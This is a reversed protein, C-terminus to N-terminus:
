PLCSYIEVLDIEGIFSNENRGPCQGIVIPSFNNVLNGKLPVKRAYGNVVGTLHTGDYTLRVDNMGDHVPLTVSSGASSLDTKLTMTVDDGSTSLHVSPPSASNAGCNSLIDMSQKSSVRAARRSRTGGLYKKLHGPIQGTGRKVSGDPLTIEWQQNSGNQQLTMQLDAPVDGTGTRVTGDPMTLTWKKGLTSSNKSKQGQGQGQASTMLDSPVAGTGTRVTGDPLTASWVTGTGAGQSRIAASVDAPMEGVGSRVSGDPLTVKWRNIVDSGGTAIKAAPSYVEQFLDLIEQPIPGTGSKVEGSPLKVKWGNVHSTQPLPIEGKAFQTVGDPLAGRGELVKQGNVRTVEWHPSGGDRSTSRLLLNAPNASYKQLTLMPTRGQGSELVHGNPALVSWTSTVQGPTLAPGLLFEDLLAQPIQGPGEQLESGDPKSIQWRDVTDGREYVKVLTGPTFGAYRNMVDDPIPGEGKQLVIGGPALIFWRELTPPLLDFGHKQQIDQPVDGRGVEVIKGTKGDPHVSVIRWKLNNNDDVGENILIKDKGNPIYVIGNQITPTAAKGIKGIHVVNNHQQGPSTWTMNVDYRPDRVITGNKLFTLIELPKLAAGPRNVTDKIIVEKQGTVINQGNSTNKLWHQFGWDNNTLVQDNTTNRKVRFRVHIVLQDRLNQNATAPMTLHSDGSFHATGSTTLSVNHIDVHQHNGSTDEFNTDFNLKVNPTCALTPVVQGADFTCACLRTSYMQGPSCFRKVHGQGPIVELYSYYSDRDPRYRCAGLNFITVELPCKEQCAPDGVCGTGEVYKYGKECCQPNSKGNTCTFYSRCTALESSSPYSQLNSDSACRDYSCNVYRADLCSVAENSWFLGFPCSKIQPEYTFTTPLCLVYKECDTPLPNFGVGGEVLCQQCLAPVPSRTTIGPTTTDPTASTTLTTNDLIASCINDRLLEVMGVLYKFDPADFLTQPSTAMDEVEQRLVRNGVGVVFITIGGLKAMTAQDRTESPNSSMGDTIVIIIHPVRPRAQTALMERVTKLGLATNTRGVPPQILDSAARKLDAKSRFPTLPVVDGIDSGYVVIGVHISDAGIDISNILYSVFQKGKIWDPATISYSGDILFIVDAPKSCPFPPIYPSTTPELTTTTTPTTPESTTTTPIIECILDELQTVVNHLQGFNQVRFLRNRNDIGAIAELEEQFTENGVGLAIMEINYQTRARIAERITASVDTSRGDTIIVAIQKADGEIRGQSDSMEILKSIAKATDTGQNIQEAQQLLGKLQAKTKFPQLDIVMGIDTSYVIVGVHIAYREVHLNDILVSVFNKEQEWETDKISDSADMLFVVDAPVDCRKEQAFAQAVFIIFILTWTARLEFMKFRNDM